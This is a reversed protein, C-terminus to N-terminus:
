GTIYVRITKALQYKAFRHHISEAFLRFLTGWSEMIIKGEMALMVSDYGVGITPQFDKDEFRLREGMGYRDYQFSVFSADVALEMWKEPATKELTALADLYDSYPNQAYVVAYFDKLFPLLEGEWFDPKLQWTWTDETEKFDYLEPAFLLAAQMKQVVEELTLKYQIAREKSASVSTTIGIALYQGM